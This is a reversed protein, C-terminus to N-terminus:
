TEWLDKQLNGYVSANEWDQLDNQCYNRGKWPTNVVQQLAVVLRVLGLSILLECAYSRVRECTPTTNLQMSKVEMNTTTSFSGGNSQSSAWTHKNTPTTAKKKGKKQALVLSFNSTTDSACTMICAEMWWNREPTKAKCPVECTQYSVHETQSWKPVKKGRRRRGWQFAFFTLFRDQLQLLLLIEANQFPYSSARVLRPEIKGSFCPCSTLYYLKLVM